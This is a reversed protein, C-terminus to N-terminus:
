ITNELEKNAKKVRIDGDDGNHFYVHTNNKYLIAKGKLSFHEPYHTMLRNFVKLTIVIAQDYQFDKLLHDIAQVDSNAYVSEVNM